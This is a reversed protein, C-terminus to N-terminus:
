QRDFAGTGRPCSGILSNLEYPDKRLDFFEDKGHTRYIYKYENDLLAYKEGVEYNRKDQLKKREKGKKGYKLRQAFAYNKHTPREKENRFFLPVLSVGQVSRIQNSLEGGVLDVVTPLINVHEM